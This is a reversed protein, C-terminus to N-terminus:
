LSGLVAGLGIGLAVALVLGVLWKLWPGRRKPPTIVTASTAASAPLNLGTPLPPPITEVNLIRRGRQAPAPRAAAAL